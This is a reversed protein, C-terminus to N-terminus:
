THVVDAIALSLITLAVFFDGALAFDGWFFDGVLVVLALM